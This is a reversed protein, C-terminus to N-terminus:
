EGRARARSLDANRMMGAIRGSVKYVLRALSLPLHLIPEVFLWYLPYGAYSERFYRSEEPKISFHGISDARVSMVLGPLYALVIRNKMTEGLPGPLSRDIMRVLDVSFSHYLNYGGSAGARAQILPQPIYILKGGLAINRLVWNLQPFLTETVIPLDAMTKGSLYRTRNVIMGSIFTTYVNVLRCFDLGSLHLPEIGGEFRMNEQLPENEFGLSSLHVLDPSEIELLAVLLSLSGTRLLDDDGIIWCYETESTEFCKIVNRVAGINEPNRIYRMGRIRELYERCCGETGDTSANDIVIVAVRGSVEEQQVAISELLMSLRDRRNFTPIAITLLENM